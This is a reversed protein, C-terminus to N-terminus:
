VCQLMMQISDYVAFLAVNKTPIVVYSLSCVVGLHSRNSENTYVLPFTFFNNFSIRDAKGKRKQSTYQWHVAPPHHLSTQKSLSVCIFVDDGYYDIAVLRALLLALLLVCMWDM